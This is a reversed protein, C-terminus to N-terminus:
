ATRVLQLYIMNDVLSKIKILDKGLFDQLDSRDNGNRVILLVDCPQTGLSIPYAIMRRTSKDSGHMNKCRLDAVYSEGEANNVIFPTNRTAAKGAICHKLVPIRFGELEYPYLFEFKDISKRLRMVFVCGEELSLANTLQRDLETFEM